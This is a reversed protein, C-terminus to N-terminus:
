LKNENGDKVGEVKCIINGDSLRVDIDQGIVAQKYSSILEGTECKVLAYGRSLVALPSLADLKGCMSGLVDKNNRLSAKTINVIDKNLMDLRLRKQNIRDIPDRFVRSDMLHKLKLREKEINKTMLHILRIRFHSIKQELEYESPVAIEAAASPTPARLDAVFDAITFDTEHGVASIIPIRSNAICRAVIEENFAWLEEISGGGRGTIIVDVEKEQNFYNIGEVIQFCAQEGQVLVPYIYVKAYGFRRNLVNIIDRVAAGTASTVVGIKGPYQPLQKKREKQFLGEELLKAKLQEFAIHLSGIGDPQMDNIYMQYQGGQEYVSIKGQVIVKMGDEPKFKLMRSSGKFMVAKIVSKDDKLTLYMHGSYHLKFNSIEGRVMVDRLVIDVDIIEKIYNNIESVSLIMKEM